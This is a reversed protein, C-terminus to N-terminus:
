FLSRLGDAADQVNLEPLSGTSEERLRVMLQNLQESQDSLLKEINELEDSSGTWRNVLEDLKSLDGQIGERITEEASEMGSPLLASALASTWYGLSSDDLSLSISPNGGTMDFTYSMGLSPSAPGVMEVGGFELSGSWDGLIVRGKSELEEFNKSEVKLHGELDLEGGLGGNGNPSKWEANSLDLFLDVLVDADSRGNIILTADLDSSDLALETPNGSLDHDIGVHRGSVVGDDGVLNLERISFRPPLSAPFRVIRGTKMRGRSERREDEDKKGQEGARASAERIRGYWLSASDGLYAKVAAEMWR